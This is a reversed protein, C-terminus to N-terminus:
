REEQPTLLTDVDLQLIRIRNAVKYTRIKQANRWRKLTRKSIGLQKSAQSLTLLHTDPGVGKSLSM